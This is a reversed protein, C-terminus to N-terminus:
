NPSSAGWGVRGNVRRTGAVGEQLSVESAGESRLYRSRSSRESYGGRWRRRTTPRACTEATAPRLSRLSPRTPRARRRGPRLPRPQGRAAGADVDLPDALDLAAGMVVHEREGLRHGLEDALLAAPEVVPQRGGVDDVRGERQLQAIRALDQQRADVRHLLGGGSRASSNRCVGIMPRVWPTWASGVVKPRLSSPQTVSIRRWRSAGRPRTRRRARDALERAGDAGVGVGVRAHLRERERSSPRSRSSTAVWTTGRSRWAASSTPSQRHPRTAPASRWRPAGGGACRPARPARATRRRGSPSRPSAACACGSRRALADGAEGAHQARVRVDPELVDGQPVLAVDGVGGGLPDDQGVRGDREVVHEVAGAPQDLAQGDVGLPHQAVELGRVPEDEGAPRQQAHDLRADAALPGVLDHLAVGHGRPVSSTGSRPRSSASASTAPTSSAASRSAIKSRSARRTWTSSIKSRVAVGGPPPGHRVGQGIQVLGGPLTRSSYPKPSRSSSTADSRMEANSTTSGVGMGSLPRTRVPSERNQNSRVRPSTRLWMSSRSCPRSGRPPASLGVQGAARHQGPAQPHQRDLADDAAVQDAGAPLVVAGGPRDAAVRQRGPQALRVLQGLRDERGDVLAVSPWSSSCRGRRRRRGPRPPATRRSRAARRDLEVARGGVVRELAADDDGVGLELEAHVLLPRM